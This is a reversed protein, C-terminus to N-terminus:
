KLKSIFESFIKWSNIDPTGSKKIYRQKYHKYKFTDFKLFEVDFEDKESINILPAGLSKNMKEIMPGIWSNKLKDSTLFIIPKEWCIAYSVATSQHCIVLDCDRVLSATEGKIVSRGGWINQSNKLSSLPHAAIIIEIGLYNELVSFYNNLEEYYDSHTIPPEVERYIFDIHNPMDEDLFVAYRRLANTPSTSRHSLFIDYDLSHAYIRKKVGMVEFDEESADGSLMAIDAIMYKKKKRFFLAINKLAVAFHGSSVVSKKIMAKVISDSTQPLSGLNVIARLIGWRKLSLRIEDAQCSFGLLDIAITSGMSPLNKELDLFSHIHVNCPNNFDDKSTLNWVKENLWPTLNLVLVNFKQSLFKIQFRKYNRENFPSEVLFVLNSIM